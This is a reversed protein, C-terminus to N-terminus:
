LQWLLATGLADGHCRAQFLHSSLHGWWSRTSLTLHANGHVLGPAPNGIKNEGERLLGDFWSHPLPLCDPTTGTTLAM